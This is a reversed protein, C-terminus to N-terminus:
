SAWGLAVSSSNTFSANFVSYRARGHGRDTVESQFLVSAGSILPRLHGPKSVVIL